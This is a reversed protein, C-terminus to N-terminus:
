WLFFHLMFFHLMFTHLLYDIPWAGWFDMFIHKGCFVLFHAVYKEAENKEQEVKKQPPPPIHAEKSATIMGERIFGYMLFVSDMCM